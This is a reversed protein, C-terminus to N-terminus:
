PHPSSAFPCKGGDSKVRNCSICKISFGKPYNNRVLWSVLDFGKLRAGSSRKARADVHDIELFPILRYGRVRCGDCMCRIKGGKKVGCYHRIVMMRLRFRYESLSESEKRGYVKRQRKM